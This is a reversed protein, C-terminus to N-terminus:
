KYININYIHMIINKLIYTQFFFLSLNPLKIHNELNSKLYVRKKVKEQVYTHNLFIGLLM